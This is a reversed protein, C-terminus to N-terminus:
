FIVPFCTHKIACRKVCHFFLAVLLFRCASLISKLVTINVLLKKTNEKNRAIERAGYVDFGLSVILIFYSLVAQAFGLKGFNEPGLVRAIYVTTFFAIGKSILEAAALYSFNKFIQSGLVQALM